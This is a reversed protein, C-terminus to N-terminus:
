PLHTLTPSDDWPAGSRNLLFSWIGSHQSEKPIICSVEAQNLTKMRLIEKVAKAQILPLEHPEM